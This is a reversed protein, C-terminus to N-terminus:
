ISMGAGGGGRGCSLPHGHSPHLDTCGLGGGLFFSSWCAVPIAMMKKNNNKIAKKQCHINKYNFFYFYFYFLLLFLKYLIPRFLGNSLLPFVLLMFFISVRFAIQFSLFIFFFLLLLFLKYLIPRFLGNSLLPFVLLM